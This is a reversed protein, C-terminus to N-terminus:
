IKIGVSEKIYKVLYDDDRISGQRNPIEIILPMEQNIKVENVLHRIKSALRETLVIIGIEKDKIARKFEVEGEEKSSVLVGKIGALRMGVLTDHSDSILFIKM